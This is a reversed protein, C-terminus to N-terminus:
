PYIPPLKMMFINHGSCKNKEQPSEPAVRLCVAPLKMLVFNYGSCKNKKTQWPYALPNEPVRMPERPCDLPM